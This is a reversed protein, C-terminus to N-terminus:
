RAKGILEMRKTNVRVAWYMLRRRLRPVKLLKMAELFIKDATVRSFDLRLGCLFDHVIAAPRHRGNKVIFLRFFRPISSLDTVTGTPVVVRVPNADDGLLESQYICDETLIWQEPKEGIDLPPINIFKIM